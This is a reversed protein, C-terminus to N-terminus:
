ANAQLAAKVCAEGYERMQQETFLPRSHFGKAKWYGDGYDAKPAHPFANCIGDPNLLDRYREGHWSCFRAPPLPHLSVIPEVPSRPSKM